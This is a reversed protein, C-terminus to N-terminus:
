VDTKPCGKCKEPDPGCWWRDVATSRQHHPDLERVLSRCYYVLIRDGMRILQVAEGALARSIEWRKGEVTLQGQSQLRRVEAGVEYEWEAPNEQYRRESRHWVSAPTKMGLAEHPREENYERRFADYWPQQPESAVEGRKRRAAELSGHFREVKGQTQPHRYGSLHLQIGQKMLWVTLWTWGAAAQMNWWPTGHDMLMEEPVGCREFAEALRERVPEARTSGTEALAIAYRSHDDLVSLPGTVANWGASGKFDMQWLQNPAGRQFRQVAARHRDQRRVLEHRLLIRHITIRPLEVGERQLLVRLKRAGWDPRRQRLEVVRQEIGAATRQPSHEPRRSKEVVGAIGSREYRRLWEYGTPRSIKFEECLQEMTTERRRALVVFRMRQEDVNMAGWAM